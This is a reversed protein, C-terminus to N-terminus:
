FPFVFGPLFVLALGFFMVSGRKAFAMEGELVRLGGHLGTSFVVYGVVVTAFVLATELGNFLLLSENYAFVFPLIFLPLGLKMSSISTEYFGADAIKCTVAPALAIPPTISALMAYYFVFFHATIEAFGVNVMAPAILTISILYAAVTPMGLGLALSSVMVLLLLLFTHGGAFNVIATSLRYGIGSATVSTILVGIGALTISIPAMRVSGTRLGLVTSSTVDFLESGAGGGSSALIRTVYEAAVLSAITWVGAIGPSYGLVLLCYILVGVSFAIPIADAVTKKKNIQHEISADIGLRVTILHVSVVVAIYFIIAPLAAIVIIEGYSYELFNAMLFAVSGMVPPMIMGGTSATAEIAGATRAPIGEEKMLPITFSGTVASNAMPSGSISGMIMSAVVATQTVGSKFKQGIWFGINIFTQLGGLEEVIGAWVLFIFIWTAGIHFILHFVGGSLDLSNLAIIREWTNGGHYFIGPMVYGYHAYLLGLIAIAAIIWGYARYMCYIAGLILFAGILLEHSPYGAFRSLLVEQNREIYVTGVFALGVFVAFVGMALTQKTRWTNPHGADYLEALFFVLFALSLHINDYRRPSIPQRLIYYIGVLAMVVSLLLVLRGIVNNADPVATGARQVETPEKNTVAPESAM